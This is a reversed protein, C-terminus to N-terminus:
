NFIMGQQVWVNYYTKIVIVFQVVYLNTKRLILLQSSDRWQKNKKVYGNHFSGLSLQLLEIM